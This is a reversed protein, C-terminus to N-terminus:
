SACSQKHTGASAEPVKKFLNTQFGWAQLVSLPVAPLLWVSYVESASATSWSTSSYYSAPPSFSPQSYFLARPKVVRYLNMIIKLNCSKANLKVLTVKTTEYGTM